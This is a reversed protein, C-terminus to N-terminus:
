WGIEPKQPLFKSSYSFFLLSKLWILSYDSMWVLSWPWALLLADMVLADIM